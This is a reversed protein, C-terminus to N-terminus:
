RSKLTDCSNEVLSSANRASADGGYEYKRLKRQRPTPKTGHRVMDHPKSSETQDGPELVLVVRLMRVYAVLHERDKGARKRRRRGPGPCLPKRSSLFTKM